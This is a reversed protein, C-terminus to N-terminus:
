AHTPRRKDHRGAQAGRLFVDVVLALGEPGELAGALNRSGTRLMGLLLRALVEPCVDERLAGEATGRRLIEAVAADLKERHKRWRARFEGQRWRVRSEESHMMRFLPRRKRFFSSIERCASLLQQGFPADAPVTRLLADGLEDFGSMATEFFLDEKDKFYRYVTGKGVGAERIVDDLTVEHFRRSTFLKEAAQM